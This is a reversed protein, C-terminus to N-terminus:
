RANDKMAERKWLDWARLYSAKEKMAKVEGADLYTIDKGLMMSQAQLRANLELYVSRGVVEPLSSGVIVAGHGRMLAAPHDAVVRALARGQERNSIALNTTGIAERIEFVPIGDGVFYSMIYVPRLPVKTIGFPILAPAHCHVVANVDPRVRYIEGHIFREVYATTSDGSIPNSDLDYEGIDAITVLAPAIARALLYRAANPATRASVHGLGDVIGQAALIRNAAVLDGILAERGTVPKSDKTQQAVVRFSGAVAVGALILERRNWLRM